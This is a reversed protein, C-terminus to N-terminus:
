VDESKAKKSKSKSKAKIEKISLQKYWLTWCISRLPLTYFIILTSIITSVIMKTVELSTIMYALNLASLATNWQDFPLVNSLFPEFIMNLLVNIRFVELLMEGIKPLLIYTLGGVLIMLGVTGWFNTKVLNKSRIFCEWPTLNKEFTFVQFILVIFVFIIIAFVWMPPLIGILSFVGFLLWLLVFDGVRKSMTAVKKHANIDYIRGSKVTNEAMSNVSVYAVLYEWFAKTFIVLGPICLSLTILYATNPDAMTTAISSAFWLPLGLALIVGVFQGLIPFSMYKLFTPLHRFYIGVGEVFIEFVTKNDKVM